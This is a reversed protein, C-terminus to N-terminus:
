WGASSGGAAFHAEYLELTAPPLIPSASATTDIRQAMPAAASFAPWSPLGAGNPDGSKVFNLWYGSVLRSAARDAETFVRGEGILNQFLYPVEGTHFAGYRASQPGPEAHNFQYVFIPSKSAPLRRKAWAATTAMGRDRSIAKGIDVVPPSGAMYVARARDPTPKFAGLQGDIDAATWEGYTRSFGSGENANYGTLVPTDNFAGASYQAETPDRPLFRGDVVVRFGGGPTRNFANAADFVAPAPMKRLDALSAAGAGGQLALQAFRAGADLAPQLPGARPAVSSGSEAIARAFLGKASPAGILAHVAAAGASQGAITVKSPDGGFAAINAKVWELSAVMDALGFNGVEGSERVMDPHALFGFSGVRYNITVVIVGGNAALNAGDYVPVSGSGETFGGGHIWVLVPLRKGVAAKPTWINLYLCDESVAGPILFEPTWPPRGGPTTALAQMCSASFQDAKREGTWAAPKQPARWRLDGVPPAAFPVGLWADSNGSSIGTLRGQATAVTAAQAAGVTVLGALAAGM